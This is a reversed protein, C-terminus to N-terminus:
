NVVSGGNRIGRLNGRRPAPQSAPRDQAQASLTAALRENEGALRAAEFVNYTSPVNNAFTRANAFQGPAPIAALHVVADFPGQREDVGSLLAAAVEGFNTLDIRVTPAVTEKPLVQDINLVEYGNAVLDKLVARGLKGSGGTVIVKTM